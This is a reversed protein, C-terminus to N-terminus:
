IIRKTGCMPCYMDKIQTGCNHCYVYKKEEILNTQINSFRKIRKFAHIYLFIVFVLYFLIMTVNQTMLLFDFTGHLITPILVSLIMHKKELEKNNNISAQKALGYHYGMFVGFFVHGPVSLIARLIATWIDGTFVYMINELTAFGLSVFVSYVIADYIHNFEKNNWTINKVFFWKSFEEIFGVYIFAYIFIGFLPLETFDEPINFLTM